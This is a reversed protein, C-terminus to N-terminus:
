VQTSSYQLPSSFVSVELSNSGGPKGCEGAVKMTVNVIYDNLAKEALRLVGKSMYVLILGIVLREIATTDPNTSIDLGTRYCVISKFGAVEPDAASAQLSQTLDKTFKVLLETPTVNNEAIQKDLHRRM